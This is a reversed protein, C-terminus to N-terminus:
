GGKIATCVAASWLGSLSRALWHMVGREGAVKLFSDTFSVPM